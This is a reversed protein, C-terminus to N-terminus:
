GINKVSFISLIFFKTMFLILFCISTITFICWYKFNTILVYALEALCFYFDTTPRKFKFIVSPIFKRKGFWSFIEALFNENMQSIEAHRVLRSAQEIGDTQENILQVPLSPIASQVHQSRHRHNPSNSACTNAGNSSTSMTREEGAQNSQCGVGSCHMNMNNNNNTNTNGNLSLYSRNQKLNKHNHQSQNACTSDCNLSEIFEESSVYFYENMDKLQGVSMSTTTLDILSGTMLNFDKGHNSPNEHGQKPRRKKATNQASQASAKIVKSDSQPESNTLTKHRRKLKEGHTSKSKPIRTTTTTTRKSLKLNISEEKTVSLSLHRQQNFNDSNFDDSNTAMYSSTPTSDNSCNGTSGNSCLSISSNNNPTLACLAGTSNNLSPMKVIMQSRNVENSSSNGSQEDSNQSMSQDSSRASGNIPSFYISSSDEDTTATRDAGGTNSLRTSNANMENSSSMLSPKKNAKKTLEDGCVASEEQNSTFQAESSPPKDRLDRHDEDSSEM